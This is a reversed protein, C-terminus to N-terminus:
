VVNAAVISCCILQQTIHCSSQGNARSQLNLYFMKKLPRKITHAHIIDEFFFAHVYVINLRCYVFFWSICLWMRYMIYNASFRRSNYIHGIKADMQPREATRPPSSNNPNPLANLKKYIGHTGNMYVSCICLCLCLSILYNAKKNTKIHIFFFFFYYYICCMCIAKIKSVRYTHVCNIPIKMRMAPSANVLSGYATPKNILNKSCM